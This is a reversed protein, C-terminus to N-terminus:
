IWTNLFQIDYNSILSSLIKFMFVIWYISFWYFGMTFSFFAIETWSNGNFILKTGSFCTDSFTFILWESAPPAIISKRRFLSQPTPFYTQTATTENRFSAFHVRYFPHESRSANVDFRAHRGSTALRQSFMCFNVTLFRRQVFSATRSTKSPFPM